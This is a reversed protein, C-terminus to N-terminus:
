FHCRFSLSCVTVTSFHFFFFFPIEPVFSFAASFIGFPFAWHSKKLILEQHFFESSHAFKSFNLFFLTETRTKVSMKVLLNCEITACELIHWKVGTFVCKRRKREKKWRVIFKLYPVATKLCCNKASCYYILHLLCKIFKLNRTSRDM